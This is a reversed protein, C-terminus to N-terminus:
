ICVCLCICIQVCICVMERSLTKIGMGPGWIVRSAQARAERQSAEKPKTSSKPPSRGPNVTYFCIDYVDMYIYIYVCMYPHIHMCM